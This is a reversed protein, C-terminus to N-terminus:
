ACLSCTEGSSLESQLSVLDSSNKNPTQFWLIHSAYENFLSIMKSKSM